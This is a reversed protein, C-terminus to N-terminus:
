APKPFDPIIFADLQHPTFYEISKLHFVKSKLIDGKNNIFRQSRKRFAGEESSTLMNHKMIAPLIYM